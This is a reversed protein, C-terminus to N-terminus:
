EKRHLRGIQDEYAASFKEGFLHQFDDDAERVIDDYLAKMNDWMRAKRAAAMMKDMVGEPEQAEIQAPDFRAMVGKLAARMGAIVALEHAKLDDFASGIAKVPPMYGSMANTLMQALASEADPFFKLPNNAQAGLVTMDLRSERKTMARAMLVAMTGSVAERLMAGALEATEAPGRNLQLASLGMGRLLAQLVADGQMAGMGAAAGFGPQALPQAPYPYAGAGAGPYGPPLGQAGQGGQGGPVMHPWGPQVLPPQAQAADGWGGQAMAGAPPPWGAGAHQPAPIAAPTAPWVGAPQQAGPMAGMSPPPYGQPMAGPTGPMAQQAPGYPMAAGAGPMTQMGPQMAAPPAPWGGHAPALGAVAPQGNASALAQPRPPALDALPDYDDPIFVAPPPPAAPAVTPTRMVLVTPEAAYPSPALPSPQPSGAAPFAAPWAQAAPAAPAGSAPFPAPWGQPQAAPQPPHIYPQPQAGDPAAIAPQQGPLLGGQMPMFQPAAHDPESGRYAAIQQQTPVQPEGQLGLGLPDNASPAALGDFHGAVDLVKMGALTDAVPEFQPPAQEHAAAPQAQFPLADSTETSFVPVVANAPQEVLVELVYDGIMLRDGHELSAVKGTGVPRDNIWSPNAGLDMLTYRGDAFDIKSHNRSIYKGPDPLELDNGAARGITGGLQDFRREVPVAPAQKRYTQVRLTLSM